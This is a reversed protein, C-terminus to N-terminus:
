LAIREAARRKHLKVQFNAFTKAADYPQNSKQIGTIDVALLILEIQSLQASACAKTYAENCRDTRHPQIPSKLQISARSFLKNFKPKEEARKLYRSMMLLM